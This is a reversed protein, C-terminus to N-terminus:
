MVGIALTRKPTPCCRFKERVWDSSEGSAQKGWNGYGTIAGLFSGFLTAWFPAWFQQGFHAWFAFGIKGLISFLRFDICLKIKQTNEEFITNVKQARQPRVNQASKPCTKPLEVVSKPMNQAVIELM